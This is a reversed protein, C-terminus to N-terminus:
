TPVYQAACLSAHVMKNQIYEIKLRMLLLKENGFAEENLITLAVCKVNNKGCLDLPPVAM